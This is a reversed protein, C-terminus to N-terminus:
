AREWSLSGPFHCAVWQNEGVEELAPEVQSCVEQAVPCRTHFRCGEPPNIPSPVDGSLIIRKVEYDPDPVPVASTLAVSYPHSPSSFFTDGDAIEVVKGLYMVIVRDCIQRVVALDHSIFIYTLQYERKLDKLLNLIQSRVSVDLSSVPEDAVVLRPNLALARAIGIRQRQGGSFEHPYRSFYEAGLGVKELLDLARRRVEPPSAVRHVKMGEEVISGIHMRPDLSTFPDQFIMQINRRVGKLQSAPLSSIDEGQFFISGATPEYLRMVTMGLTSKGCGSEGVIGLTEEPFVEFSVGDVAKVWGVTRRFVGAKIPFYKKLDEVQLLPVNNM